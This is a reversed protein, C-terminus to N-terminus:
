GENYCAQLADQYAKLVANTIERRSYWLGIEFFNEANETIAEMAKRGHGFEGNFEALTALAKICELVYGQGDDDM